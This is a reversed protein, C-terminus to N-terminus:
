WACNSRACSLITEAQIILYYLQHHCPDNTIQPRLRSRIEADQAKIRSVLIDVLAETGIDEINVEGVAELLNSKISM